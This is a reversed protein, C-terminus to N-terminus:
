VDVPRTRVLLGVGFVITWLSWPLCFLLQPIAGGSWPWPVLWFAIILVGATLSLLGWKLQSATIAAVGILLFALIIFVFFAISASDHPLDITRPFIGMASIAISGLILSVMGLQGLRSSLLSQRLGIAFILSLVGTLVLGLNFLTAASGEVGLVSIHSETWSFWPSGSIAVLLTTIAVLQSTTGCVGAIRRLVTGRRSSAGKM